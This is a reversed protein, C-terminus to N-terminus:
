NYATFSKNMLLFKERSIRCGPFLEKLEELRLLRISVALREASRDDKQKEYWGLPFTKLLTKKVPLPLMQFFPFIFHPEMPFNYNPTQVYYNKAIRKINAAVKKQEEFTPFHEIVSNSYAVDFEGDGILGLDRADAKIRSFNVPMDEDDDEINILTIKMGDLKSLHDKWHYLTGGVDAINLGTGISRCYNVFADIRRGRLKSSLSGKSTQDAQKRLLSM